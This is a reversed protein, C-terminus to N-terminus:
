IYIHLYQSVAYPIEILEGGIGDSFKIREYNFNQQIEMYEMPYAKDSDTFFLRTQSPKMKNKWSSQFYLASSLLIKLSGVDYDVFLIILFCKENM